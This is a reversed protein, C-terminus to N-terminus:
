ANLRKRLREMATPLARTVELYDLPFVEVPLGPGSELVRRLEMDEPTTPSFPHCLAPAIWQGDKSEVVVPPRFNEPAGDFVKDLAVKGPAVAGLWRAILHYASRRRTEDLMAEGGARASDLLDLALFRDLTGHEYSNKFSMLCGYCARDCPRQPARGEIREHALLARTAELLEPLRENLEVVYGAGGALQDYLFVEVATHSPGDKTFGPRYGAVVEGGEVELVMTAALSLATALSSLTSQFAQRGPKGPQLHQAPPLEFRLLLVDTQFSTGLSVIGTQPAECKVLHGLENPYPAHHAPSVLRSETAPEIAGCAHCLRFGREKPGRNTILVEWGEALYARIGSAGAVPSWGDKAPSPPTLVARGPRSFQAADPETRPRLTVAHAFGPPRVWQMALPQGFAADGCSPCSEATPEKKGSLAGYGCVECARFFAADKLAVDLAGRIPSYLATSVWQRGDIFVTRGPAYESLALSLSRQPAYRRRNRANKPADLGHTAEFVHFAVLDTPFAYKPLVGEYLLRDLLSRKDGAEEEADNDEEAVAGADQEVGETSTPSLEARLARRVSSRLRSPFEELLAGRDRVEEPLWRDIADRLEGVKEEDELWAQLSALNLGNGQNSLAFERVWGLSAFLNSSDKTPTAAPVMDEVFRQLVFANVHRQAIRPNELNLRPDLVEGKILKSPNEFFHQNHGDQDAYAVVTAISSGRRGARGARQQYNARGPPMNRLAVASLDGIDIGVEMTTTCSLVDIPSRMGDISQATIDQFALEHREARSQVDGSVGTLAASHERAVLPRSKVASSLAPARYFRKRAEFQRRAESGPKMAVVTGAGSCHVCAGGAFIAAQVHSCQSCRGWSALDDETCPELTVRSANLKINKGDDDQTEARFTTRLVPLWQSEFASVAAAGGAARIVALIGKFAGSAAAADLWHYGVELSDAAIITSGHRELFIGLWMSMLSRAQEADFGPLSLKHEKWMKKAAVGSPVVRALALAQLGTHKDRIVRLLQVGVPPPPAEMDYLEQLYEDELDNELAEKAKLQESALRADFKEDTARLDVGASAAGILLAAYANKLTFPPRADAMVRVGEILLPRLSDRLSARGMEAALRAAKQRGDSFILVKRGALPTEQKLFPPKTHRGPQRILQEHILAYFPEQGSTQHDEVPSRRLTEKGRKIDSHDGCVGCQYFTRGQEEIPEKRSADPRYLAVMRRGSGNGRPKSSIAGTDCDLEFTEILENDARGVELLVDVPLVEPGEGQLPASPWLFEPSLITDKGCSARVYATGCSRCTFFEFVRSGCADCTDRPQGFLAGIPGGSGGSCKSNVCAWLGPLGRHFSHIRSPLLNSAGPRPRAYASLAALAETAWRAKDAPASPFLEKALDPIQLASKQTLVVMRRRVPLDVLADHVVKALEEQSRPAEDTKAGCAELAVRIAAFQEEVSTKGYFAELNATALAEALADTGPEGAKDTALTGDIPKFSTKPRGVLQAAFEVAREPSSFSASTIAVRLQGARDAGALDLRELLRRILLAVETGQAGRYLHAEDLVLYLVQDRNRALWERTKDFIPRELPRMLMYELMSYNTVLVDPPAGHRQGREDLYGYFEHRALLERDEPQPHLRDAWLRAGTGPGGFWKLLDPKAPWRGRQALASRLLLADENGERAPREVTKIYFDEFSQIRSADREKFDRVGAFPTRGTYQGFTAPRGALRKFWDAVDDDGLLRRIRSLQDNVLANMPYLVIARVGRERFSDPREAAEIGLRVLIPNSFCETKGSGTGTFVVIHQGDVILTRLAQGQHIYPPDFILPQPRSSIRQVLDRVPQPMGALLEAYSPGKAYVRTSEIFPPQRLVGEAELLARRQQLISPDAIHYVAEVYERLREHLAEVSEVFM